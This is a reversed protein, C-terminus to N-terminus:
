DATTHAAPIINVPIVSQPIDLEKRVFEMLLKNPYVTILDAALGLSDAALFINESATMCDQIAGGESSMATEEPLACVVICTGGNIIMKEDPLENAFVALKRKDSVLIFKWPLMQNAAPDTMAAHLIKDIADKNVPGGTFNRVTKRERNVKFAVQQMITEAKM